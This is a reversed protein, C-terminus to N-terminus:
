VAYKAGKSEVVNIPTTIEPYLESITLLIDMSKSRDGIAKTAVVGILLEATMQAVEKNKISEENLFEFVRKKLAADKNVGLLITKFYPKLQLIVEANGAAYKSLYNSAYLRMGGTPHESLKLMLELGYEDRFVKSTMSRGFSQVDPRVNDCIYLLSDISWDNEETHESLYDFAWLRVDGWDSEVIKIAEDLEYKIKASSNTFYEKVRDRVLKIDSRGLTVVESLPLQDLVLQRDFQEEALRQAIEYKSFVLAYVQEKSLNAVESAFEDDLLKKSSQHMGEYEEKDVLSNLLENFLYVKYNSDLQILQNVVPGVSDRVEGYPSFCYKTILAKNQLLFNEPYEKLFEVGMKRVPADDSNLYVGILDKSLEYTSAQNVKILVGGFYMWSPREPDLVQGIEKGTYHNFLHKLETNEILGGLMSMYDLDEATTLQIFALVDNFEIKKGALQNLRGAEALPVILNLVEQKKSFLLEKVFDINGFYFDPHENLWDNALQIAEENNCRLLAMCLSIDPQGSRNKNRAIEVGVQAIQQYKNELISILQSISVEKEFDPNAKFLKVAFNAVETTAANMLVELSEKPAKDWLHPRADERGIILEDKGEEGEKYYWKTRKGNVAFRDSNGYLVYLYLLYDSYKPYHKTILYYKWEGNVRNYAYQEDKKRTQRDEDDNVSLLIEKAYKVYHQEVESQSGAVTRFARTLFFRRTKDSFALKSNPKVIEEERRVYEGDVWVYYATSSYNVSSVAVRKAILSFTKTDNLMESLKYVHRVGQFCGAKLPVKELLTIVHPTLWEEVISYQYLVTLFDAYYGSQNMLYGMMKKTLQPQDKADICELWDKPLASRLYKISEVRGQDDKDAFKLIFTLALRFTKDPSTAKRCIDSMTSVSAKDELRGLAWIASYKEFEENSSLFFRLQEVASQMRLEGAKWIIRSLKWSGVYQGNVANSLHKQIVEKKADVNGAPIVEVSRNQAEELSEVYGKKVKSDVLKQYVKQAEDLAVPFVTKTGEKLNAGRRGYRFNVVYLQDDVECLDVEYVKDSKGEKFYLRSSQVAKM